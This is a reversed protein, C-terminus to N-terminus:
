SGLIKAVATKTNDYATRTQVRGFCGCGRVHGDAFTESCERPYARVSVADAYPLSMVFLALKTQVGAIVAEAFGYDVQAEGPPHSLPLFVEKRGVKLERVAEKVSTYGGAFAHEAKLRQWIRRATHRQKKPAKTDDDLIQRIVPLVPEITPRRPPAVRRYGPPEEHSLIKKLTLWHIDYLRCAERKSIEGTLVRRRIEAWQDM